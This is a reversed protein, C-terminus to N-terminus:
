FLPVHVDLPETSYTVEVFKCCLLQANFSESLLSVNSQSHCHFSSFNLHRRTESDNEFDLNSNCGRNLAISLIV